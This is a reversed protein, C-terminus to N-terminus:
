SSASDDVRGVGNGSPKGGLKTDTPKPSGDAQEDPVPTKPSKTASGLPVKPSRKDTRSNGRKKHTMCFCRYIPLSVARLNLRKALTLRPHSLSPLKYGSNWATRLIQRNNVREWLYPFM